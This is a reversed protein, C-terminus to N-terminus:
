PAVPAADAVEIAVPRTQARVDPDYYLYAESRPAQARLPYRAEFGVEFRLRQGPVLKAVYIIIQRGTLEYRAIKGAEMAAELDATVVDFGPPIGLDIIVNEAPEEFVYEATVQARLIDGTALQTRDYEVKLRLPEDEAPRQEAPWPVWSRALIQTMIGKREALSSAITVTNRGAQLKGTADVVHMVDATEPTIEITQVVEGNIVVDVSATVDRPGGLAAQILAKLTMITAQTSSWNGMADKHRVLWDLAGQALNPELGSEILGLAILATAEMAGVDGTSGFASPDESQWYVGGDEDEKKLRALVAVVKDRRSHDPDDAFVQLLLGLTYPDDIDGDLKGALFSRARNLADGEVGSEALAWTVYATTNVISGQQRNIAGEAIGGQEVEWSGDGKQKGLLFEKTRQIVDPDVPYVQSMDVFERLGYATLVLHAPTNGFWEFGGGTCEFTLLRQYGLQVYQEAKMQIEPTITETKRLYDLVLLNPYTSSSTQEFCGGPMQLMSDLNEVAQALAGPYVKVELYESGPIGDRPMEFEHTVEGILADSFTQEVPVGDPEVRIDRRIADSKREGTAYVTLAHTGPGKAKIRFFRSTVERPDLRVTLKQAGIAQFWNDAVLELEVDQAQDLYNYLAVPISVEDNQTLAVPLDLDVFFPQFVVIGHERSGLAGDSSSALVSMRWTTISDAMDLEVEAEGNDDTVVDPKWLLTEPFFKRIRAPPGGAGGGAPTTPEPTSTSGTETAVAMDAAMFAGAPAAMPPAGGWGGAEEMPFAGRMRDWRGEQREGEEEQIASAWEQEAPSLASYYDPWVASLTYTRYEGEPVELTSPDWYTDWKVDDDTDTRGDPGKSFIEVRGITWDPGQGWREQPLKRVVYERGWPDRLADSTAFHTGAPTGAPRTWRLEAFIDSPVCYQGYGYYYNDQDEECRAEEQMAWLAVLRYVHLVGWRAARNALDIMELGGQLGELDEVRVPRGAPATREGDTLLQAAVARDLVDDKLEGPHNDEHALGGGTFGVLKELADYIRWLKGTRFAEREAAKNQDLSWPAEPEAGALLVAAAKQRAAPIDRDRIVDDVSVGGPAFHLEYRPRLIEKELLFYIKELGPQMEQLAYVAEDVMIVGLAAAKPRGAADTVAFRIRAHEGPLYEPQNQSVDIRLEDAPEVVMVRGDRVFEGDRRLLYAHLELTGALEPPIALDLSAKGDALDLTKTLVTQRGQVIDLFVSGVDRTSLVQVKTTSGAKAVAHELRLLVQDDGGAEVPVAVATDFREGGADAAFRVPLSARAIGNEDTSARDPLNRPAHWRLAAIGLEDTAASTSGDPVDLTVTGRVATGDPRAVAIWLVNDVGPVVRGSEPMVLVELPDPSVVVSGHDTEDQDATDVVTTEFTVRANGQELESGALVRPLTIEFGWIGDADTTGHAEQFTHFEADFTQAKVTVRGGAVPQGFFYRANVTGSVVDGPAYYSRDFSVAVQFKPLVYHEVTVTKEALTEGGADVLSVHWPGKNVQSAIPFDLSAIGQASTRVTKRQLKNGKADEILFTVSVNGRAGVERGSLALARLHMIQGPQYMPKDTTLLVRMPDTIDVERAHTAKGNTEDDVVHVTLLSKGATGRPVRFSVAAAGKEDTRGHYVTKADDGTGLAVWVEADPAPAAELLSVEREVVVRLGARAGVALQLQGLLTAQLGGEVHDGPEDPADVPLEVDVPEPDELVAPVSAATPGGAPSTTWQDPRPEDGGTPGPTRGPCAAAAMIAAAALWRLRATKRGRGAMRRNQRAYEM